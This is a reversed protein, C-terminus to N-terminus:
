LQTIIIFLISINDVILKSSCIYYYVYIEKEIYMCTSSCLMLFVFNHIKKQHYVSKLILSITNSLERQKSLLLQLPLLLKSPKMSGCSCFPSETVSNTFLDLSLTSCGIQLLSHLM